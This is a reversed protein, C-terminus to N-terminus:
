IMSREHRELEKKLMQIARYHWSKVTNQPKDFYDAIEKLSYGETHRMRITARYEPPMKALIKELMDATDKNQLTESPLLAEDAVNESIPSEDEAAELATMPLERRHKKIWDLSENKVIKLLWSKFQGKQPDFKNRSLPIADLSIARWVKIFARQVIDEAYQRDYTVYYAMRYAQGSYKNVLIDFAEGAGSQYAAILTNDDTEQNM